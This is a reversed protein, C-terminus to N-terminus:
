RDRPPVAVFIGRGSETNAQEGHNDNRRDTPRDTQRDEEEEDLVFIFHFPVDINKWKDRLFDFECIILADSISPRPSSSSLFKSLHVLTAFCYDIRTRNSRGGNIRFLLKLSLWLLAM